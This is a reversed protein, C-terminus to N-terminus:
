ESFIASLAPEGLAPEGLAPIGAVDMEEGEEEEDSPLIRGARTKELAQRM